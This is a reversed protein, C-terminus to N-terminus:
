LIGREELINLCRVIFKEIDLREEIPTHSTPAQAPHEHFFGGEDDVGYIRENGIILAMNLKNKKINRYIQVYIVPFIEIRAMLTVNTADINIIKLGYREVINFIDQVIDIM